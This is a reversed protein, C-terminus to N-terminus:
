DDDEATPKRKARYSKVSLAMALLSAIVGATDNLASLLDLM